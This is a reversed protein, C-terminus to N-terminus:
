ANVTEKRSCNPCRKAWLNDPKFGRVKGCRCALRQHLASKRDFLHHGVACCDASHTAVKLM